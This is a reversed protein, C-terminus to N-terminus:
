GEGLEERTLQALRESARHQLSKVSGVTRGMQRGTEELSLGYLFRLTLVRRQSENLRAMARRLAARAARLELDDAPGGGGRRGRAVVV